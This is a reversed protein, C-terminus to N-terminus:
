RRRRRPAVPTGTAAAQYFAVGAALNDWADEVDGLPDQEGRVAALLHDISASEEAHTAPPALHAWGEFPQLAGTLSLRGSLSDQVLAADTGVLSMQLRGSARDATWTDEITAVMGNGFEVVAVGYDEVALEPYRLNGVTGGIRTVDTDFLWRLLDIHYISHDFWAGGVVREREAFWGPGTAGPWGQPLGAWLSFGATLPRGLRGERIWGRLRQALASGRPRCEAPLLVVGAQHVADAVRGAEDLTRALPKVSVIHKGAGAAAVCIGPNDATNVFSGVVTVSSDAFVQEVSSAIPVGGLEAAVQGARVQDADWIWAADTDPRRAIERALPLATYWHDLGLIAVRLPKTAM